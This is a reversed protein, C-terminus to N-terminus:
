KANIDNLNTRQEIIANSEDTLIDQETSVLEKLNKVWGALQEETCGENDYTVWMAELIPDDNWRNYNVLEQYTNEFEDGLLEFSTRKGIKALTM